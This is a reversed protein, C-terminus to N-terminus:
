LLQLAIFVTVAVLTVIASSGIPLTSTSLRNFLTKACDDNKSNSFLRLPKVAVISLYGPANKSFTSLHSTLGQRFIQDCHKNAANLTKDFLCYLSSFLKRYLVDVDLTIGSLKSFVKLKLLVIFSLTAFSLVQLQSIIHDLTYANYTAEYPLLGFILSPYIGIGITLAAAISMAVLMTLPAEKIKTSKQSDQKQKSFFAFFPIKLGAQFLTAAAFLLIFWVITYHEKIVASQIMSKSVFGSFFPASYLTGILCFVATLPMSKYLAGLESLKSTGTRYLVAGVSMFLLSKFIIDNFAHMVTANLALETGVGIGVVMFGVQNIIAYSLLRRMDNEIFAYFVTFVAMIAGIWILEETGAFGRALAYVATKTTFVSLFVTGAISAESYSDILWTHLLPWACNVGFGIFILMSSLNSLTMPSFVLSGTESVHLVIGALLLLGGIVHFLAYRFAAKQSSITKRALILIFAGITLAEWFILFSFLDGSLVAGIAAGAYFFAAVYESKDNFSLMYIMGIITAIHFVLAFIFSLKDLQLILLSFDLFTYTWSTGLPISMLNALSFLPLAIVYISRLTKNLFPILLSGLILLLAPHLSAIM